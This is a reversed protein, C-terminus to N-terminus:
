GNKKLYFSTNNQMIIKKHTVDKLLFLDNESFHILIKSVSMFWLTFLVFIIM